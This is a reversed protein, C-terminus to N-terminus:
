RGTQDELEVFLTVKKIMVLIQLCITKNCIRLVAFIIIKTMAYFSEQRGTFVARVFKEFGDGRHPWLLQTIFSSIIKNPPYAPVYKRIYVWYVHIINPAKICIWHLPSLNFSWTLFGPLAWVGGQMIIRSIISYNQKPSTPSVFDPIILNIHEIPGSLLPLGDFGLTNM